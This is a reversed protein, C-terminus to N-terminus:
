DEGFRNQILKVLADVAEAADDGRARIEVMSGCEAALMMVGMISKGSVEVDEKRIWVDARFRNALKVLEAAPRAHLGYKNVIQVESNTEM